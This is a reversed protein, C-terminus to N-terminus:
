KVRAGEISLRPRNEKPEGGAGFYTAAVEEDEPVAVLLIMGGAKIRDRLYRKGADDPKLELTDAHGTEVTMFTGSGLPHLAKFAEKSVGGPSGAEFKLGALPETGGDPPEALFYRVKGDQTFRANSQVLRLSMAEVAGARDEGKPLEFVLVGYSAYREKKVGEINFYRSGAEGQRPGAPQVTLSQTATAEIEAFAALGPAAMLTFFWVIAQCRALKTRMDTSGGSKMAEAQLRFLLSSGRTMTRDAPRSARQM